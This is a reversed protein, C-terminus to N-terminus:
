GKKKERLVKSIGPFIATALHEAVKEEIERQRKKEEAKRTDARKIRDEETLDTM